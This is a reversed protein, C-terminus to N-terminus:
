FRDKIKNAIISAVILKVIDFLLPTLFGIYLIKRFAIAKHQIYNLNFYLYTVGLGYIVVLGLLGGLLYFFIKKYKAFYGIPISALVFGVLYGFTPQLVYGIGGGHAFIPLGILGLILYVLGGMFAPKIGFIMPMLLVVFPQLTLPVPELPIRIFTSVALFAAVLASYVIKNQNM